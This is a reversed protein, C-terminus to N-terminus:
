ERGPSEPFMAANARMSEAAFDLTAASMTGSPRRQRTPTRAGRTNRGRMTQNLLHSVFAKDKGELRMTTPSLAPLSSQSPRRPTAAQRQRPKRDLPHDFVQQAAGRPPASRPRNPEKRAGSSGASGSDINGGRSKPAAGSKSHNLKSTKASELGGGLITTFAAGGVFSSPTLPGLTPTLKPRGIARREAASNVDRGNLYLAFPVSGMSNREHLCRAAGRAELFRM